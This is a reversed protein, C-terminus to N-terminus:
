GFVKYIIFGGFVFLIFGLIRLILLGKESFSLEFGLLKLFGRYLNMLFVPNIILMLSIIFYIFILVIFLPIESKKM